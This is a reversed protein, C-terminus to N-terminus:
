KDNQRSKVDAQYDKFLQSFDLTKVVELFKDKQSYARGILDEVDSVAPRFDNQFVFNRKVNIKELILSKLQAIYSLISQDANPSFNFVNRLINVESSPIDRASMHASMMRLFLLGSISYFKAEHNPFIHYAETSLTYLIFVTLNSFEVKRFAELFYEIPRTKDIKLMEDLFNLFGEDLKMLSTLLTSLFSNARLIMQSHNLKRFNINIILPILLKINIGATYCWTQYFEERDNRIHDLQSLFFLFQPDEVISSFFSFTLSNFPPLSTIACLSKAFKEYSRDSENITQLLERQKNKDSDRCYLSFLEKEGNISIDISKLNLPLELPSPLNFISDTEVFYVQCSKEMFFIWANKVNPINKPYIRVFSYNNKIIQLSFPDFDNFQYIQFSSFISDNNPLFIPHNTSNPNFENLLIPKRFKSSTRNIDFYQDKEFEFVFNNTQFFPLLSDIEFLINSIKSKKKLKRTQNLNM